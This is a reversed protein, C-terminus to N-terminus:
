EEDSIVEGRIEDVKKVEGKGYVHIKMQEMKPHYYMMLCKADENMKEKMYFWFESLEKEEADPFSYELDSKETTEYTKQIYCLRNYELWVEVNDILYLDNGYLDTYSKMFKTLEKWNVIQNM